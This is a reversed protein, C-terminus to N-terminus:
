FFLFTLVFVALGVGFGWYVQNPTHHKLILRATGLLGAVFIAGILYIILNTQLNFSFILIAGTLGGIGAMHASIKWKLTILLATLIILAGALMVNAITSPVEMQKLLFYGMLYLIGITAFPVIREKIAQMNFSKILNQYMFLPIFALPLLCTTIFVIIFIVKKAHYPLLSYYTNSAFLILIGYTPMLLPNFLGSIVKAFTKQM